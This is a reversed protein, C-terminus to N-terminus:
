AAPEGDGRLLPGEAGVVRGCEEAAVAISKWTLSDLHKEDLFERMTVEVLLRLRKDGDARIMFLLQEWAPTGTNKTGYLGGQNAGQHAGGLPREGFGDLWIGRLSSVQGGRTGSTLPAGPVDAERPHLEMVQKHLYSWTGPVATKRQNALTDKLLTSFKPVPVPTVVSM